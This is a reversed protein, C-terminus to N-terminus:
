SHGRCTASEGTVSMLGTRRGDGSPTQGATRRQKAALRETTDHGAAAALRRILARGYASAADIRWTAVGAPIM